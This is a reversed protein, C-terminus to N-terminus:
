MGVPSADYKPVEPMAANIEEDFLGATLRTKSIQSEALAMMINLLSNKQELLRRQSEIMDRLSGKGQSYELLTKEFHEELLPIVESEVTVLNAQLRQNRIALQM